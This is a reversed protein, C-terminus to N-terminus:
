KVTNWLDWVHLNRLVARVTYKRIVMIMMVCLGLIYAIRIWFRGVELFYLKYLIPM